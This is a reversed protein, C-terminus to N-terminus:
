EGSEILECDHLSPDFVEESLYSFQEDLIFDAPVTRPTYGTFEKFTRNFSRVTGFGCRESIETVSVGGARLLRMANRVRVYNLYQSFTVGTTKRFFRSFYADSMHMLKAADEFTMDAYRANVEELLPKLPKSSDARTRAVTEEGRFVELMLKLIECAVETGYYPPKDLLLRRISAYYEAVPYREKLRPSKLRVKGLSYKLINCDFILVVLVTGKEQAQMYHMEESDIFFSDGACLSHIEGNCFVDIRGTEVYLFECDSHWHLLNYSNRYKGVWVGVSQNYYRIERKAFM